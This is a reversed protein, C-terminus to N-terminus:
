DALRYRSKVMYNNLVETEMHEFNMIEDLDGFLPIGKGLLKPIRTIILEDILRERLFSQIVKGGDVYLNEVGEKSLRDLVERLAGRVIMVKGELEEPVSSLSNSLVYVPKEYMWPMDFSLVKEFTGRGMLIGDVRSIFEAFGFDSGDPNPADDLWEVGGDPTAIYGDLSTAIYVYNSM